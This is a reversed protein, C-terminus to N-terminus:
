GSGTNDREYGTIVKVVTQHNSSLTCATKMFRSDIDMNAYIQMFIEGLCQHIDTIKKELSTKEGAMCQMKM